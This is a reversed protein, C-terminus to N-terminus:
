PGPDPNPDMHVNKPDQIWIRMFFKHPDSVSCSDDYMKTVSLRKIKIRFHPHVCSVVEYLYLFLYCFQVYFGDVREKLIGVLLM